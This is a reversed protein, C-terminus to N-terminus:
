KRCRVASVVVGLLPSFSLPERGESGAPLGTVLLAGVGDFQVATPPKPPCLWDPSWTVPKASQALPPGVAVVTTTESGTPMAVSPLAGILAIAVQGDPVRRSDPPARPTGALWALKLGM